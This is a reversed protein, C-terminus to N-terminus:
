SERMFSQVISDIDDQEIFSKREFALEQNSEKLKRILSYIVVLLMKVGASPFKRIFDLLEERGIRLLTTNDSSVINAAQKAFSFIGAEGFIDGEGIASIFIDKGVNESLIVNVNGELVTYLYPSVEGESVIRDKAKYHVVDSVALAEKLADKKLYKFLVSRQLRELLYNEDGNAM